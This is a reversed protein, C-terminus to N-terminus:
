ESATRVKLRIIAFMVSQFVTIFSNLLEDFDTIKDSRYFRIKGKNDAGYIRCPYDESSWNTSKLTMKEIRKSEYTIQTVAIFDQVDWRCEKDRFDVTLFGYSNNLNIGTGLFNKVEFQINDTNVVEEVLELQESM